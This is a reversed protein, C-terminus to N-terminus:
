VLRVVTPLRTCLLQPHAHSPMKQSSVLLWAKRWSTHINMGRCWRCLRHKGPTTQDTVSSGHIAILPNGAGERGCGSWAPPGRGQGWLREASRGCPGEGQHHGERLKSTLPSMGGERQAGGRGALPLARRSYNINCFVCPRTGAECEGLM